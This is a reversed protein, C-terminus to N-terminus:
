TCEDATALFSKCGMGQKENERLKGVSCFQGEDKKGMWIRIIYYNTAQAKTGRGKKTYNEDRNYDKLVPNCGGLIYKCEMFMLDLDGSSFAGM